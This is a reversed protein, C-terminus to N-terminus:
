IKSFFYYVALMHSKLNLHKKKEKIAGPEEKECWTKLGAVATATTKIAADMM